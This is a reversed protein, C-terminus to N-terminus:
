KTMQLQRWIVLPRMQSMFTHILITYIPIYKQCVEKISGFYTKLYSLSTTLFINISKLSFLSLNIHSLFISQNGEMCTGVPILGVALTYARVPFPVGLRKTYPIISWCVSGYGGSLDIKIRM